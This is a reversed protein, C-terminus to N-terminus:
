KDENMYDSLDHLSGCNHCTIFVAPKYEGGCDHGDEDIEFTFEDPCGCNGCIIHLRSNVM